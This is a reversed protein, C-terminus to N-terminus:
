KFQIPKIDCRGHNPSPKLNKFFDLNANLRRIFRLNHLRCTRESDKQVGNIVFVKFQEPLMFKQISQIFGRLMFPKLNFVKNYKESALPEFVVITHNTKNVVLTNAHCLVVENSNQAKVCNVLPSEVWFVVFDVHELYSIAESISAYEQDDPHDLGMDQRNEKSSISRFGILRPWVHRYPELLNVIDQYSSKSSLNDM